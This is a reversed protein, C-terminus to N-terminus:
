RSTRNHRVSQESELSAQRRHQHRHLWDGDGHGDRKGDRKGDHKGDREGDAHGNRDGRETEWKREPVTSVPDTKRKKTRKQKKKQQQEWDLLRTKTSSIRRRTSHTLSPWALSASTTVTSSTGSRGTRTGHARTARPVM